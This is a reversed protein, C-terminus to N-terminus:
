QCFYINRRTFSEQLATNLCLYVQSHFVNLSIQPHAAMLSHASSVYRDMVIMGGM